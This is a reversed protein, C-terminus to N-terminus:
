NYESTIGLYEELCLGSGAVITATEIGLYRVHWPEYMYGTEDEKDAPYRIIFGYEACHEALWKGEATEGFSFELSNLDFALGTQHESYGPRASYRDAADRGERLLYNSYLTQQREFSRFGSIVFLEIGDVKAAKIMEELASYAVSDVGPNYDEPLPYSKNAIMIGDVYTPSDPYASPTVVVSVETFVDSNSKATVTVTARGEKLATIRGYQDVSAVSPDSSRWTTSKDTANNPYITEWPMDIQGVHLSLETRDLAIAAVAVVGNENPEGVAPYSPQVPAPGDPEDGVPNTPNEDSPTIPERGVGTQDDITHPPDNKDDTNNKNADRTCSPMVLILMILLVPLIMKKMHKM